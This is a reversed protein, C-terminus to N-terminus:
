RPSRNVRLNSQCGVALGRDQDQRGARPGAHPRVGGLHQVRQGAAAHQRMRQMRHGLRRGSMKHDQQTMVAVLDRGRDGLQGVLQAPRDLDRDLLLLEARAM